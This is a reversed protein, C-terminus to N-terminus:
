RSAYRFGSFPSKAARKSTSPNPKEAVQEVGQCGNQLMALTTRAEEPREADMLLRVLGLGIGTTKLRNCMQHTFQDNTDEIALM